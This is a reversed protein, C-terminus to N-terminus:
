FRGGNSPIRRLSVDYDPISIYYADYVADPTDMNFYVLIINQGDQSVRVRTGASGQVAGTTGSVKIFDVTFTIKEESLDYGFLAEDETSFSLIMM